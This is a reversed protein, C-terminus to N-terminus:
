NHLFYLMLVIVCAMWNIATLTLIIRIIELAIVKKNTTGRGRNSSPVIGNHAFPEVM